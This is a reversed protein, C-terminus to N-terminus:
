PCKIEIGVVLMGDQITLWDLSAGLWPWKPNIMLGCEVVNGHHCFETKYRELAVKEKEIGGNYCQQKQGLEM